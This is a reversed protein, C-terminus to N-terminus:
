VHSGGKACSKTRESIKMVETWGDQARSDHDELMKLTREFMPGLMKLAEAVNDNSRAMEKMFGSNTKIVENAIAAQEVLTKLLPPIKIFLWIVGALIIALAVIGGGETSILKAISQSSGIVEGTTAM